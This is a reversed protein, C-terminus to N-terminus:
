MTTTPGRPAPFDVSTNCTSVSSPPPTSMTGTSFGDAVTDSSLSSTRFTASSCYYGFVSDHYAVEVGNFSAFRASLSSAAALTPRSSPRSSPQSGVITNSIVEAPSADPSLLSM